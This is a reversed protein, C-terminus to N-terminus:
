IGLEREEVTRVFGWLTVFIAIIFPLVEISIQIFTVTIEMDTDFLAKSVALAVASSVPLTFVIWLLSLCMLTIGWGVIIQIVRFPSLSISYNTKFTNNM